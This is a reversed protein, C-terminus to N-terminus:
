RRKKKKFPLPLMKMRDALVMYEPDKHVLTAHYEVATAAIIADALSLRQLAKIRGAALAIRETPVAIALPLSKLRVMTERAAVQGATQWVVYYIETLSIQALLYKGGTQHQRLLGAVTDAGSEERLLALIASTDFLIRQPM